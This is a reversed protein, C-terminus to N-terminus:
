PDLICSRGQSSSFDLFIISTNDKTRQTRAESLLFSAIKEVSSEKEMAQRSLFNLFWVRAGRKKSYYAEFLSCIVQRVLQFAKKINIVDWFGDSCVFNVFKSREFFCSPLINM